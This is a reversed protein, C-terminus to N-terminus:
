CPTIRVSTHPAAAAIVKSWTTQETSGKPPDQDDIKTWAFDFLRKGLLGAVIRGEPGSIM